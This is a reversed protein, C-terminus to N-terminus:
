TALLRDFFARYRQLGQRLDETSAEQGNWSSQLREHEEALRTTLRETLETVLADADHMARQPEDVFDAQIERWRSITAQLEDPKQLQTTADETIVDGPVPRSSDEPAAEAPVPSLTDEPASEAPVPRQSDEATLDGAQPESLEGQEEHRGVREDSQADNTHDTADREDTISDDRPAAESTGFTTM